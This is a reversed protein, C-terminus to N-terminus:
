PTEAPPPEVDRLALIEREEEVQWHQLTATQDKGLKRFYAPDTRKQLRHDAVGKEQCGLLLAYGKYSRARGLMRVADPPAPPPTRRDMVMFSLPLSRLDIGMTRGFEMWNRDTFIEGPVDGFFHCWNRANEPTLLGCNAGHTCPAVPQLEGRLAQRLAVIRASAERTGPEVCVLCGAGRAVTILEQFSRDDLETLVHSVLLVAPAEGKKYQRVECGPM